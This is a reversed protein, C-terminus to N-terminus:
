GATWRQIYSPFMEDIANACVPSACKSTADAHQKLCEINFSYLRNKTPLGITTVIMGSDCKSVVHVGQDDFYLGGFQEVLDTVSVLSRKFSAVQKVGTLPGIDGECLVKERQGNAVGVVSSSPKANSVHEDLTVYTFSAGSDVIAHRLAAAHLARVAWTNVNGGETSRAIEECLRTVNGAANAEDVTQMLSPTLLDDKLLGPPMTDYLVLDVPKRLSSIDIEAGMFDRLIEDQFSYLMYSCLYNHIPKSVAKTMIDALNENTNIYNFRVNKKAVQQKVLHWRLNIHKTRKHNVPNESTYIAAKNDCGVMIPRENVNVDGLSKKEYDAACLKGYTTPSLDGYGLDSFIYRLWMAQKTAESAAMYESECSSAAVSKLKFSSWAVPAQWSTFIYGGRSRSTDPDGGWDADVYGVCPGDSKNNIPGGYLIGKDKTTAVYLMLREMAEAHKGGPNAQVKCLESLRASIDLRTCQELWRLAGCMERYRKGHPNDKPEGQFCDEVSIKEGSSVTYTPTFNGLKFRAILDDVYRTQRLLLGSDGVRKVAIGLYVDDDDSSSYKYEKEIDRILDRQQKDGDPTRDTFIAMDDVFLLIRILGQKTPKVFLCPDAASAKFGWKILKKRFDMHFARAGTVLGYLAKDLQLIQGPKPPAMGAPAEMFQKIKLDATLYASKIDLFRINKNAHAAEAVLIRLTDLKGVPSSSDSYDVGYIQKYGRAVLRAKLRSINGADNCKAKFVWRGDIIHMGPKKDVWQFVDFSKLNEVEEEIAKIWFSALDSKVAEKFNKPTPVESARMHSLNKGEKVSNTWSM